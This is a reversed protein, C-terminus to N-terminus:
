TGTWVVRRSVFASFFAMRVMGHPFHPAVGGYGSPWHVCFCLIMGPFLPPRYVLSFVTGRQGVHWAFSGPWREPRIVSDRARRRAVPPQFLPFRPWTGHIFPLRCVGSDLAAFLAAWLPFGGHFLPFRPM